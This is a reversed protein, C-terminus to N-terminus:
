CIAWHVNSDVFFSAFDMTKTTKALSYAVKSLSCVGSGIGVIPQAFLLDNEEKVKVLLWGEPPLPRIGFFGFVKRFFRGTSSDGVRDIVGGVAM